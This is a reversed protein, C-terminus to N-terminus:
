KDKKREWWAILKESILLISTRKYISKYLFSFPGFTKYLAAETWISSVPKGWILLAICDKVSLREILFHTTGYDETKVYSLFNLQRHDPNSSLKEIQKLGCCLFIDYLAETSMKLSEFNSAFDVLTKQNLKVIASNAEQNDKEAICIKNNVKQYGAVSGEDNMSAYQELFLNACSFKDSLDFQKNFVFLEDNKDGYLLGNNAGWYFMPVSEMNERRLIYNLICRSSGVWGLDVLASKEEFFNEQELYELFLNRNKKSCNKILDADNERLCLGFLQLKKKSNLIQKKPFKEKTIPSIEEWKLGIYELNQGVTKDYAREVTLAFENEDADYFSCAYLSKRSVRLYRCDLGKIEQPLAKAIELFIRSDRALFFLRKIGNEKATRLVYIVYPVYISAIFDIAMEEGFSSNGMVRMLRSYGVWLEIEHKHTYFKSEEIWRNEENTFLCDKVLNAKIGKLKPIIFDSIKNDGYHIWNNGKTKTSNFVFDFLKGDFKGGKCETSVFILDQDDCFGYKVLIKRLFSSPLYMDSIFVIKLGQKRYNFITELIKKNPYLEQEEIEMELKMVDNKDFGWQPVDLSDYIDNLSPYEVIINAKKEAIRRNWSFSMNSRDDSKSFLKEAMLDWIKEPCGCRRVLCTDFIDFSIYNRKM